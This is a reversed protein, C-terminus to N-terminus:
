HDFKMMKSFVKMIEAVEIEKGIRSQCLKIVPEENKQVERCAAALQPAVSEPIVIVGHQDMHLLDGPNVTVGGVKVPTNYSVLHVYAHSVAVEPAFLAFGVEKVQPVDRVTGNTVIGVCGLAMHMSSNVEGIFAGMPAPDIDEIVTIRPAPTNKIATFYDKFLWKQELTPPTISSITGTCAYGVIPKELPLICKIEPSTFGETVPRVNFLEIANSITPTDFERLEEIQEKTLM